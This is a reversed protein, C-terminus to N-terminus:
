ACDAVEPQLDLWCLLLVHVFKAFKERANEEPSVAPNNFERLRQLGILVHEATRLEEFLLKNLAAKTTPIGGEFVFKVAQTNEQETSLAVLKLPKAAEAQDGM